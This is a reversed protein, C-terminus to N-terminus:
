TPEVLEELAASLALRGRRLTPTLRLEGSALLRLELEDGHQLNLLKSLGQPLRVALGHGWRGIRLRRPHNPTPQPSHGLESIWPYGAESVGASIDAAAVRTGPGGDSRTLGRQDM